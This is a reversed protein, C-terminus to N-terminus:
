RNPDADIWIAEPPVSLSLDHKRAELTHQVSEVVRSVIENLQVRESHLQIKGTAMRSVDTLDNVLGILGDVQREIIGVADNANPSPELRLLHTANSIAALPNRLEHSL